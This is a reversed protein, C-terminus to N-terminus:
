CSPLLINPTDISVPGDEFYEIGNQEFQKLLAKYYVDGSFGQQMTIYFWGNFSSIEIFVTKYTSGDTFFRVGEIHEKLSGYDVRGVYSVSFTNNVSDELGIRSLIDSKSKVDPLKLLKQLKKKQQEAYFLVNEPQSQVMVAGRTCTCINRVAMDDLRKPYRVMIAKCLMRYNNVSKLAPRMNFSIASVIDKTENPHVNWIAKAMVASFLTCPSADNEHSFKMIDSEKVRFNYSTPTGNTVYGCDALRLFEKEPVTYFPFADAMEKEPYPNEVEGELLADDSLRIDGQPLETKLYKCLYYYLVSKMFPMFGAGDTIVHTIYFNIKNKFYSLALIHYNVDASGLPYPLNGKFVKIPLDNNVTILEGGSKLIKVAFYPYRKIATNVASELMSGDTEYKLEVEIRIGFPMKESCLYFMPDYYNM